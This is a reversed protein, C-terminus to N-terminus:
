EEIMNLRIRARRRLRYRMFVALLLVLIFVAVAALWPNQMFWLSLRVWSWWPLVGVYYVESGIRFSQFQTGHLVAVSGSIDGSQQAQLFTAMFTEFASANKLHIVVISRDGNLAFPSKIGEIISDPVGAATLSGSEDHEGSRLKWWANHLINVFFGQTDRM